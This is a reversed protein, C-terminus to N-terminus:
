FLLDDVVGSRGLINGTVSTPDFIYQLGLGDDNALNDIAGGPGVLDHAIAEIPSDANFLDDIVGSPGTIDGLVTGPDNLSPEIGITGQDNLLNDVIGGDGVADKAVDHLIVAPSTGSLIGM